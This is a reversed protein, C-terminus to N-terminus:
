PSHLSTLRRRMFRRIKKAQEVIYAGIMLATRYEMYSQGFSSLLNELYRTLSSDGAGLISFENNPKVVVGNKGSFLHLGAGAFGFDEERTAFACLVDINEYSHIISQRAESLAEEFSKRVYDSNIKEESPEILLSLRMREYIRNMREPDGSYTLAVSWEEGSEITRIKSDSYKMYQPVTLQSDSCLVIGDPTQIGLAITM